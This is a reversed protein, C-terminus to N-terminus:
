LKHFAERIGVSAVAKYVRIFSEQQQVLVLKLWQLYFTYLKGCMCVCMYIIM